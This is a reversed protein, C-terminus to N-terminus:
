IISCLWYSGWAGCVMLIRGGSPGESRVRALKGGQVDVAVARPDSATVKPVKLRSGVWLPCCAVASRSTYMGACRTSGRKEPRGQWTSIEHIRGSQWSNQAGQSAHPGCLCSEMCRHQNCSMIVLTVAAKAAVVLREAAPGVLHLMEAQVAVSVGFQRHVAQGTARKWGRAGIGAHHGLGRMTRAFRQTTSDRVIRMIFGVTLGM